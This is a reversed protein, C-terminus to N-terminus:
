ADHGVGLVACVVGYAIFGMFVSAVLAAGFHESVTVAADSLANMFGTM